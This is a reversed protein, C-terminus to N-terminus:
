EQHDIPINNDVFLVDLITKVDNHKVFYNLDKERELNLSIFYKYKKSFKNVLTTKGVQRAGRLILPKRNSLSKWTVLEKEIHRHFEQM